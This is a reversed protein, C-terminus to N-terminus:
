LRGAFHEVTYVAVFTVAFVRSFHDSFAPPQSPDAPLM